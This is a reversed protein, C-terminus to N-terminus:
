YELVEFPTVGNSFRKPEFQIPSNKPKAAFLFLQDNRLGYFLVTGDQPNLPVTELLPEEPAPSAIFSFRTKHELYGWTNFVGFANRSKGAGIIEAGTSLAERIFFYYIIAGMSANKENFAVEDSARFAINAKNKERLFIGSGVLRNDQYFFVGFVEKQEILKKEFWDSTAIISFNKETMRKQYYQFWEQYKEASLPICEWTINKEVLISDANKLFHRLSKSRIFSLPDTTGSFPQPLHWVVKNPRKIGFQHLDLEAM